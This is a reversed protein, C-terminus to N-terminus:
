IIKNDCIYSKSRPLSIEKMFIKVLHEDIAKPKCKKNLPGDESICRAEGKKSEKFSIKSGGWPILHFYYCSCHWPNGDISLSEMIKVKDLFNSSLYNLKNYSIDLRELLVPNDFLTEPLSMLENSGLWLESIFTSTPFPHDGIKKIGNGTLYIYELKKFGRFASNQITQINNQDLDLVNLIAPNQFWNPNFQDLQNCQLYVHKTKPGFSGDEIYFINNFRLFLYVANTQGFNDKKVYVLENSQMYIDTLVPLFKFEPIARQRVDEIFITRLNPLDEVKKIQKDNNSYIQIKITNTKPNLIFSDIKIVNEIDVTQFTSSGVESYSINLSKTLIFINIIFVFLINKCITM